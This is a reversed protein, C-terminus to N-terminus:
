SHSSDNSSSHKQADDPNAYIREYVGDTESIACIDVLNRLVPKVIEMPHTTNQYINSGSTPGNEELYHILHISVADYQLFTLIQQLRAIDLHQASVLTRLASESRSPQQKIEADRQLIGILRNLIDLSNGMIQEQELHNYTL